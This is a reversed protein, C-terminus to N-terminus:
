DMTRNAHTALYVNYYREDGTVEKGLWHPRDFPEKESQLELEAIILGEYAGHFVDVEFTHIGFPIYYREKEIATECLNMIEVADTIPIAYEFEIHSFGNENAPGKVTLSASGSKIRIRVSREITACLYAQVIREKKTALHIFDGEVLFKREIEIM